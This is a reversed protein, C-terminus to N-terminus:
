EFVQVLAPYEKQIGERERVSLALKAMGLAAYHSELFIQLHICPVTAVVHCVDGGKALAVVPASRVRLKQFPTHKRRLAPLPVGHKAVQEGNKRRQRTTTM